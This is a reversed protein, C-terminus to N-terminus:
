RQNKTNWKSHKLTVPNKMWNNKKNLHTFLDDSLETVSTDTTWSAIIKHNQQPKSPISSNGDIDMNDQEYDSELKLPTFSNHSHHYNNSFRNPSFIQQSLSRPSFSIQRYPLEPQSCFNIIQAINPNTIERDQTIWDIWNSFITHEIYEELINKLAILEHLINSPTLTSSNCSFHKSFSWLRSSQEFQKLLCNQLSSQTPHTKWSSYDDELTTTADATALNTYAPRRWRSYSLLVPQYTILNPL